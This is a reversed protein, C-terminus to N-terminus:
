KGKAKMREEHERRGKALRDYKDDPKPNSWFGRNKIQPKAAKIGHHKDSQRKLKAAKPTDHHNNKFQNCKPCVALCNALVPKGGLADALIHEFNVGKSLPASCRQRPELGYEPGIAECAGGSRELAQRQVPKPFNMRKHKATYTM